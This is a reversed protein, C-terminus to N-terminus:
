TPTGILTGALIQGLNKDMKIILGDQEGLYEKSYANPPLILDDSKTYGSFYVFGDMGINLTTYGENETGGILTCYLVRDLSPPLAMIYADTDKRGAERTECYAGPTTPFDRSMTYGSLYVNGAEDIDLGRGNDISVGGYYTSYQLQGNFSFRMLFADSGGGLKKRSLADPTTPFDDTELYGHIYVGRERDVVLDMPNEAWGSAGSGGIFTAFILTSLTPDFKAFYLDGTGRLTQCFAGSTVPFNASSTYGVMYVNGEDDVDVDYGEDFVSSGDIYTSFLMGPDIVFGDEEDVTKPVRFTVTTGDTLVFDGTHSDGNGDVGDLLIPRTDHITDFATEIVLDGTRSDVALSEVGEYTLTISSAEAGPHIIFDYKFMGNAFYFRLDIGEYVSGYFVESFSPVDTHWRIPDAGLYFNNRSFDMGRGVPNVQNSGSFRFLFSSLDRSPPRLDRMPGPSRGVEELLTFIIGDKTLGVSLPDGRAYFLVEQNAM